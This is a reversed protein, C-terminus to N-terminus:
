DGNEKKLRFNNAVNCGCKIMSHLFLSSSDLLNKYFLKNKREILFHDKEKLNVRQCALIYWNFVLVIFLIKKKCM